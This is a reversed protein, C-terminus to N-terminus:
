AGRGPRLAERDKRLAPVGEERQRPLNRRDAKSVWDIRDVYRKTDDYNLRDGPGRGEVAGVMESAFLINDAPIV